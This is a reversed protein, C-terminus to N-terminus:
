FTHVKIHNNNVCEEYTPYSNTYYETDAIWKRTVLNYLPNKRHNIYKGDFVNSSSCFPEEKAKLGNWKYAYLELDYFTEDNGRYIKKWFARKPTFDKDIDVVIPSELFLQKTGKFIPNKGNICDEASRYIKLPCFLSQNGNKAWYVNNGVSAINLEMYVIQGDINTVCDETIDLSSIYGVSITVNNFKCQYVENDINAYFIKEKDTFINNVM